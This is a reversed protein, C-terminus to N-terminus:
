FTGGVSLGLGNSAPGVQPADSTRIRSLGSTSFHRWYAGNAVAFGIISGVVVDEVHHRKDQVRTVAVWTALALFGAQLLVGVPRTENSARDGWVMRGGVVLSWYTAMAFSFSAHGSVFSRRGDNLEAATMPEDTFGDCAPVTDNLTGCHYRRARDQFDPRLRGFASKVGETVLMTWSLAEVYGIVTDHALQWDTRDMGNLGPTWEMLMMAGMGIGGGVLLSWGPVTSTLSKGGLTSDNEPALVKTWDKADYIPGFVADGPPVFEFFTVALTAALAISTYDGLYDLRWWNGKADEAKVM